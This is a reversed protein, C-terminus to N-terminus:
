TEIAPEYEYEELGFTWAVAQKCTRMRPPVRLLYPRKSTSDIVRVLCMPEMEKGMHIRVLEAGTDPDRDTIRTDLEVLFREYSFRTMLYQRIEVNTCRIVERASLADGKLILLYDNIVKRAENEDITAEHYVFFKKWSSRYPGKGNKNYWLFQANRTIGVKENNLWLVARWFRSPIQKNNDLLFRLLKKFSEAMAIVEARQM